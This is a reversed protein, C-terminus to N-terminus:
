TWGAAGAGEDDLQDDDSSAAEGPRSPKATM